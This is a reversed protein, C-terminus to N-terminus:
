RVTTHPPPMHLYTPLASSPADQLHTPLHNPPLGSNISPHNLSFSPGYCFAPQHTPPIPLYTSRHHLLTSILSCLLLLTPQHTSHTLIYHFHTVMVTPLNTPLYTTWHVLPVMSTPPHLLHIPLCTPPWLPVMGPKQPAVCTLERLPAM